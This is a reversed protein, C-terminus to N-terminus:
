LQDSSPVSLADLAENCNRFYNPDPFGYAGGSPNTKHPISAWTVSNARRTTVSTGVTFTLGHEFAWKLRLLLDQGEKNDPLFAVRSTGHHQVGPNPHYEQQLGAPLIYRLFISGLTEDGCVKQMSSFIQLTGTPMTGQPPAM